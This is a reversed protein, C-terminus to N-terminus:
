SRLVGEEERFSEEREEGSRRERRMMWGVGERFRIVKGVVEM